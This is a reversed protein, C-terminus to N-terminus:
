SNKQNEQLTLKKVHLLVIFNLLASSFLIKSSINREILMLYKEWQMITDALIESNLQLSFKKVFTYEKEPLHILSHANCQYLFVHRFLRISYHIFNKQEERSLAAIEEANKLLKIYDKYFAHLLSNRLLDFYVNQHDRSDMLKLAVGMNGEAMFAIEECAKEEIHAYEKQMYKKIEEFTYPKMSIIQLRSLLTPIILDTQSAVFIFYTDSPPEELIKLMKNASAPHLKEPYWLLIIRKHGEYSKLQLARLLQTCEEVSINGQKNDAGIHELWDSLDGYPHRAIFEEWERVFQSSLPKAKVKATTATPYVSIVDPHSFSQIKKCSPCNGCSDDPTRNECMLYSALAYGLLLNGSGPPGLLLIGQPMRGSSEMLLLKNKVEDRYPIRGFQMVRHAIVKM